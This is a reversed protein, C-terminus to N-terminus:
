NIYFIDAEWKSPNNYIYSSITECSKANRIIHDHFSRQWQFSKMNDIGEKIALLHIQKSTTTKYVGMIDSLSKIIPSVGYDRHIEVIGHIHNPMVVFEHLIIYPYQTALWHWQKDAIDGFANLIMKGKVIEGLCCIRNHVNSTIFYLNDESYDYGKWRNHKRNHMTIHLSLDHGTWHFRLM